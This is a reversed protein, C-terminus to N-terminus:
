ARGDIKGPQFDLVPIFFYQRKRKVGFIDLTRHHGAVKSVCILMRVINDALVYPARGQVASFDAAYARTIAGRYFIFYHAEGLALAM